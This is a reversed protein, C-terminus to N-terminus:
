IRTTAYENRLKRRGSKEYGIKEFVKRLTLITPATASRKRLIDIGSNLSTNENVGGGTPRKHITITHNITFTAITSPAFHPNRCKM